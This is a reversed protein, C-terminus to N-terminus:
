NAGSTQDQLWNRFFFVSGAFRTPLHNGNVHTGWIKHEMKYLRTYIYISDIYVCQIMNYTYM